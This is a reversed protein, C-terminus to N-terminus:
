TPIGTGPVPSMPPPIEFIGGGPLPASPPTIPLLEEAAKAGGLVKDLGVANMLLEWNGTLYFGGAIGAAALSAALLTTVVPHKAAFGRVSEWSRRFVGQKEPSSADELFLKKERLIEIQLELERGLADLDSRIQAIDLDPFQEELLEQKDLLQTYLADRGETTMLLEIVQKHDMELYQGLLEPRQWPSPAIREVADLEQPQDPAASPLAM